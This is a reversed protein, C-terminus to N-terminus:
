FPLRRDFTKLSINQLNISFTINKAFRKEPIYSLFYDKFVRSYLVPVYVNVTNKFLSLQFGADYVIRSTSANKEWAEAYTGFDLFVKVPIKVPLIKLINIQDPIDSTFNIATLWNDTKGIKSALLDTRVKFFGDRMMIQQSAFGQFENRGFFYNNYTYDEYGNPGTLNLHYPDTQIRKSSTVNGSYFFKGAFIRVDAGLESNYNFHYNGTFAIRVFNKAQEALLEASYPYLARSDRVVLRLQNLYRSESQKTIKTFRNGNPFTDSKFKLVDEDFLFTKWQIFRERTSLVNKEKLVFKLSPVLKRFGTTYKTNATDTFDDTTFKMGSVAVTIRQFSGSPYFTYSMRAIGNLEKSKTAYMPAILFRFKSPPLTYNTIAGGIMLGDYMNYGMVPTGIIVNTSDNGAGILPKFLTKKKLPTVLPGKKTLLSFEYDLNVGSSQELALKFDAPSPHKMKWQEFYFQMAKDFASRGLKKEILQIFAAGKTYATLGYNLATLSDSPTNLPQDKKWRQLSSLIHNDDAIPIDKQHTEKFHSVEKKFREGYYSNIGEDMWAYRRENSALMAQFWNHGVEHEIVSELSQEDPMPTVSTICPYEMGGPFGMNAEVVSVTNYPYEGIFKTRYRITEKIFKLSNEWVQGDELYFAAYVDIVKGSTLNLTDYKIKYVKDAFWAFDTVNTQKFILTKQQVPEAKKKQPKILTTKNFAPNTPKTTLESKKKPFIKLDAEYIAAMNKLWKKEEESQLDGSSLVVYNQPVTINVEYNGFNNYFEGQDLYPMEHWGTKDYMAPRPYWQTVQYSQGAHGGRSFNKPLQVHFPTTIIVSAGPALPQTLILKTIDIHQPHDETKVRVDNVRFDLRNIYGRDEKNSFYFDTRGNQLLQDSFATRDTRYANPWLHFWLFHLTDPSNNIYEIKAFGDLSHEADNLTVDMKFNVQQQWYSTQAAACLNCFLAFLITYKKM